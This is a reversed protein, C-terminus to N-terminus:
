TTGFMLITSLLATSMHNYNDDQGEWKAHSKHDENFFMLVGNGSVPNGIADFIFIFAILFAFIEDSFRTTYHVFRYLFRLPHM